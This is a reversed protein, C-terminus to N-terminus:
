PLELRLYDYMIYSAANRTEEQTLTITNEGARLRAAPIKVVSVSYKTHVAERVLGNGGQVDPVIKQGEGPEENVRLSLRARDAGAFALVLTADGAPARDLRFHVRWQQPKFEQGAASRTQAYWWDKAPESVGITYELPNPTESPLRAYLMPVFYDRGHRFEAASRDPVGIEWAIKSGFHPVNWTLSALDQVAGAKVTFPTKSFQGVAGTVYAYLTYAGPRVNPITFAGDSGVRTWYQYGAAQFQFDTHPGTEPAALGIWAGASTLAPKLSDRVVFVGKIGGRESASPYHQHKVWAYPWQAAERQAQQQADKWCAEATPRDNVYLLWPGYMKEWGQGAAFHMGTGDYHNMNLHLLTTGVSATLDQKNPGDNFFEHSPLVVWAGLKKEDSAFGWCGLAAYEASFMYKCDYQGKLPGTTLETVEKPGGPVPIARALEAQSAEVHPRAEDVFIKELEGAGYPQSWVMRFEGIDLAPYNAPHSVDAYVYVGPVGRRVVFHAEVNWAHKDRQPSYTHTCVLDAGEGTPGALAASCDNLKEFSAGGDRSFYINRHRGSTSVFEHDRYRLSTIEAHRTDIEVRVLGNTLVAVGNESIKAEVADGPDARCDSGLVLLPLLTLAFLVTGWGGTRRRTRKSGEQRRLM